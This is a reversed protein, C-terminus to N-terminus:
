TMCRHAVHTSSNCGVGRAVELARCPEQTKKKGPVPDAGTLTKGLTSNRTLLRRAAEPQLRVSIQLTIESTLHAPQNSASTCIRLKTLFLFRISACTLFYGDPKFVTLTPASCIDPARCCKNRKCNALTQNRAGMHHNM